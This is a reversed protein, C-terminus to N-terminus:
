VFRLVAANGTRDHKASDDCNRARERFGGPGSFDHIFKKLFFVGPLYKKLSEAEMALLAEEDGAGYDDAASGNACGGGTQQDAGPDAANSDDIAIEDLRGIKLALGQEIFIVRAIGEGFGNGGLALEFGDIGGNGDFTEDGIEIRLVGGIQQLAEVDNEVAGVIEFGAEEDVIEGDLGAARPNVGGGDGSVAESHRNKGAVGGAESTEEARWVGEGAHLFGAIGDADEARYDIEDGGQLGGFGDFEEGAIALSEMAAEDGAVNPGAMKLGHLYLAIGLAARADLFFEGIQRALGLGVDGHAAAVGHLNVFVV